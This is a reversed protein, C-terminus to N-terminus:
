DDVPHQRRASRRAALVHTLQRAGGRALMPRQSALLRNKVTATPAVRLTAVPGLSLRAMFRNSDRAGASVAVGVHAIGIEEAFDVAARILASGIGHRRYAPLVHPSIVQVVPELNIPSFTTTRLHVAGVVRGEVEAVVVREEPMASARDIVHGVEAVQQPRDGRRLVDSWLDVLAPADSDHAGRLLVPSRM